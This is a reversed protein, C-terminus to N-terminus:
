VPPNLMRNSDQDFVRHEPIDESAATRPLPSHWESFVDETWIRHSEEPFLTVNDEKGPGKHLLGPKEIVRFEPSQLGSEFLPLPNLTVQKSSTGVSDIDTVPITIITTKLIATTITNPTINSFFIAHM